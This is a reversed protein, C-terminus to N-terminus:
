KKPTSLFNHRQRNNCYNSPRIHAFATQEIRQRAFHYTDNLRRRANGSVTDAGYDFLIVPIELKDIGASIAQDIVILKGVMYLLLDLLRNFRRVKDNKHDINALPKHRQILFYGPKEAFM